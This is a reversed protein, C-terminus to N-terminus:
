AFHALFPSRWIYFITSLRLLLLHPFVALWFSSFAPMHICSYATNNFLLFLCTFFITKYRLQHHHFYFNKKTSGLIFFQLSYQTSEFCFCSVVRFIVTIACWDVVVVSFLQLLSVHVYMLFRCVTRSSNWERMDIWHCGQCINHIVYTCTYMSCLVFRDTTSTINNNQQVKKPLIVVLSFTLHSSCLIQLSSFRSAWDSIKSKQLFFVLKVNMM